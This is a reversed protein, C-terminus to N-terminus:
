GEFYKFCRTFLRVIPFHGDLRDRDVVSGIGHPAQERCQQHHALLLKRCERRREPEIGTRHVREELEVGLFRLRHARERACPFTVRRVHGPEDVPELLVAKGFAAGM